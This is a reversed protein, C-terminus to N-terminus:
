LQGSILSIRTMQDKLSGQDISWPYIFMSSRRRTLSKEEVGMKVLRDSIAELVAEPGNRYQRKRNREKEEKRSEKQSILERAM